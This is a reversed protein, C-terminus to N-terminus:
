RPGVTVVQTATADPRGDRDLAVLLCVSRRLSPGTAAWGREGGLEVLLAVGDLAADVQEFLLAGDCRSVVFEGHAVFGGYLDGRDTQSRASVVM